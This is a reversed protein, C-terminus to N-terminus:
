KKTANKFSRIIVSICKNTDIITKREDLFRVVKGKTKVILMMGFGSGLEM